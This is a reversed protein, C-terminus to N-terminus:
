WGGGGGGGGSMGGGFGGFGGGFGGSSGGYGGGSWYGGRRPGMGGLLLLPLWGGRGGFFFLILFLTFLFSFFTDRGSPERQMAEYYQAEQGTITVNYEKAILSVVATVGERIGRSYDNQKFRPIMVDRVVKSAIVDPIAGELGYGTAIWAKRDEVAVVMLAGNDKDKQGIGWADFIRMAYQSIEEPQTSRVTVVAVQATTKRELSLIWNNIEQKDTGHILGAADTVYGTNAPILALQALAAGAWMVVVILPLWFRKWNRRM